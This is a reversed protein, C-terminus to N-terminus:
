ELPCFNFYHRDVNKDKNKTTELIKNRYYNISLSLKPLKISINNGFYNVYDLKEM